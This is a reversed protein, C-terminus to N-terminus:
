IYTTAKRSGMVAGEGLGYSAGYSGARTGQMGRTTGPWDGAGVATGETEPTGEVGAGAIAAVGAGVGPAGAAAMLGPVLVAPVGAAPIPAPTAPAPAPATWGGITNTGPELGGAKQHQTRSSQGDQGLWGLLGSSATPGAAAAATHKWVPSKTTNHPLTGSPTM